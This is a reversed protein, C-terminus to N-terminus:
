KTSMINAGNSPGDDAGAHDPCQLVELNVGVVCRPLLTNATMATISGSYFHSNFIINAILKTLFVFSV